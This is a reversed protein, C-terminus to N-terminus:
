IDCFRIWIQSPLRGSHANDSPREFVSGRFGRRKIIPITNPPVVDDTSNMRQRSVIEGSIVELRSQLRAVDEKSMEIHADALVESIEKMEKELADIPLKTAPSGSM